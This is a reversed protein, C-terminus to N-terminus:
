PSKERERLVRLLWAPLHPVPLVCPHWPCGQSELVQRSRQHRLLVPWSAETCPHQLALQDKGVTPTAM